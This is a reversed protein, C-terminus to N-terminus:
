FRMVVRLEADSLVPRKAAGSHGTVRRRSSSFTGRAFADVQARQDAPLSWYRELQARRRFVDPQGTATGATLLDEPAIDLGRILCDLHALNSTEEGLLLARVADAELACVSALGDPDLGREAMVARLNIALTMAINM